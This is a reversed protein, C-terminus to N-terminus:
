KLLFKFSNYENYNNNQNQCKMIRANKYKHDKSFLMGVLASTRPSNSNAKMKVCLKQM